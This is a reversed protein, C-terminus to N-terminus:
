GSCDVGDASAALEAADTYVDTPNRRRPVPSGAEVDESSREVQPSEASVVVSSTDSTYLDVPSTTPPLTTTPESLGRSRGAVASDDSCTSVLEEKDVTSRSLTPSCSRAGGRDRYSTGMFRGSSSSVSDEINAAFKLAYMAFMMEHTGDVGKTASSEEFVDGSIRSPGRPPTLDAKTQAATESSSSQESLRSSERQQETILSHGGWGPRDISCRRTQEAKSSARLQDTTSQTLAAPVWPPKLKRAMVDTWETGKLWKKDRLAIVRPRKNHDSALCTTIMEKAGSSIKIMQVMVSKSRKLQKKSSTRKPQSKVKGLSTVWGGPDDADMIRKRCSALTENAKRSFPAYGHLMEFLMLGLVWVDAAETVASSDCTEVDPGPEGKPTKAEVTKLIEPSIYEATGVLPERTGPRDKEIALDFDSVRCHGHQDILVNEPKLDRIVFGLDHICECGLMVETFYFRAADEPMRQNPYTGQVEFLDSGPCHDLVLFEFNNSEFCAHANLVFPHGAALQLLKREREVDDKKGRAEVDTKCMVKMAYLDGARGHPECLYVRATAGEGILGVVDYKTLSKPLEAGEVHQQRFQERMQLREGLDPMGEPTDRSLNDQTVRAARKTLATVTRGRRSSTLARM